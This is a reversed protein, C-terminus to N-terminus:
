ENAERGDLKVEFTKMVTAFTAKKHPATLILPEQFTEFMPLILLDGITTYQQAENKWDDM